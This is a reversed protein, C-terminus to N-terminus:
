HLSIPLRADMEDPTSQRLQRAWVGCMSPLETAGATGIAMVQGRAGSLMFDCAEDDFGGVLLGEDRGQLERWGM